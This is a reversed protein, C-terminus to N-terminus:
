LFSAIQTAEGRFLLWIDSNFSKVANTYKQRKPVGWTNWVSLHTNSAMEDLFVM